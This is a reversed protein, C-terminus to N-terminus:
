MKSASPLAEAYMRAPETFGIMTVDAFREGENGSIGVAISDPSAPNSIVEQYPSHTGAPVGRGTTAFSCPATAFAKSSGSIFSSQNLSPASGPRELGSSNRSRTLRSTALHPLTTRSAFIVTSYRRRLVIM